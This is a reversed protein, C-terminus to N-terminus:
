LRHHGELPGPPAQRPQDSPNVLHVEGELRTQDTLGVPGEVRLSRCATLSPVGAVLAEFDAMLKYHRSDLEVRPLPGQDTRVLRFDARLDFLDSRVALLDSTTKVPVFRTRPVELARAGEITGIAAGMATELQVVPQSDPQDPRLPKRNVILPLDDWSQDLAELDLWLNNTNFFRHRDIDAFAEADQDPCQAVERLLLRGSEAHRALHGGKRDSETRRTVEMLFPPQE